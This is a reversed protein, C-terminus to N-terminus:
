LYQCYEYTVLTPTMTKTHERPREVHNLETFKFMTLDLNYDTFIGYEMETRDLEPASTKARHARADNDERM